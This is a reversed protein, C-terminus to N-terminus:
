LMDRRTQGVWPKATPWAVIEPGDRNSRTHSGSMPAEIKPSLLTEGLDLVIAAKSVLCPQESAQPTVSLMTGFPSHFRLSTVIPESRTRRRCEAQQRGPKLGSYLQTGVFRVTRKWNDNGRVRPQVDVAGSPGASWRVHVILQHWVGLKLPRQIAYMRPVNGRAVGNGTYWKTTSGNYYGSGILVNVYNRHAV